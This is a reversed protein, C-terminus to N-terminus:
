RISLGGRANKQRRRGENARPQRTDDAGTLHGGTDSGEVMRECSGMGRTPYRTMVDSTGSPSSGVITISSDRCFVRNIKLSGLGVNVAVVNSGKEAILEGVQFVSATLRCPREQHRGTSRIHKTRHQRSDDVTSQTGNVEVSDANSNMDPGGQEEPTQELATTLRGLRSQVGGLERSQQLQLDVGAQFSSSSVVDDVVSRSPGM